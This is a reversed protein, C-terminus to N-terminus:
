ENDNKNTLQDLLRTVADGFYAMPNQRCYNDLWAFIDDADVEALLDRNLASAAGSLFGLAWDGAYLWSSSRRDRLWTGCSGGVGAGLEKVKTANAPSASDLCLLLVIVLTSVRQNKVSM